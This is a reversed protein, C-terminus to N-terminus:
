TSQRTCRRMTAQGSRFFSPNHILLVFRVLTFVLGVSVFVPPGDASTYSMEVGPWKRHAHDNIERLDNYRPAIICRNQMRAPLRSIPLELNGYVATVLADTGEVLIESPMPVSRGASGDGISKLWEAFQEQKRVDVSDIRVRMNSELLRVSFRPWM